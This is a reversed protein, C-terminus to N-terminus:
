GFTQRFYNYLGTRVRDNDNRKGFGAWALRGRLWVNQVSNGSVLYTTGPNAAWTGSAVQTNNIYVKAQGTGSPPPCIVSLVTAGTIPQSSGIVNGAGTTFAPRSDGVGQFLSGFMRFGNIIDDGFVIQSDGAGTKPISDLIYYAYFSFGSGNGVGAGPLTGFMQSNPVAGFDAMPKGNPSSATRYLPNFGPVPNADRGNGSTDPWLPIPNGSAIPVINRSDLLVEWSLTTPDILPPPLGSGAVSSLFARILTKCDDFM